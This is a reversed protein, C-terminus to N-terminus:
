GHIQSMIGQIYSIRIRTFTATAFMRSPRDLKEYSLYADGSGVHFLDACNITLYEFVELRTMKPKIISMSRFDAVGQGYARRTLYDVTCRESPILHRVPNNIMIVGPVCKEAAESVLRLEDNAALLNRGSYGQSEDFGGLDNFIDKRISMNASVIPVHLPWAKFVEYAMGRTHEFDVRALYGEFDKTMWNPRASEYELEVPGGIVGPKYILHAAVHTEVFNTPVVIDDDIFILVDGSAARAGVNRAKNAGLDSSLHVIRKGSLSLLFESVRSTDEPNEVLLIECDPLSTLCLRLKDLDPNHTPIIVSAKV